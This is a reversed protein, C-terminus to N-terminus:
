KDPRVRPASARTTPNGRLGLLPERQDETAQLTVSLFWGGQTPRVEFFIDAKKEGHITASGPQSLAGDPSLDGYKKWDAIRAKTVETPEADWEALLRELDSVAQQYRLLHRNPVLDVSVIVASYQTFSTLKSFHRLIRGGPLRVILDHPKDVATALVPQDPRKFVWDFARPWVHGELTSISGLLDVSIQSLKEARKQDEHHADSPGSTAPGTSQGATCGISLLLTTVLM